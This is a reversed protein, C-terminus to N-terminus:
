AVREREPDLWVFRVSNLDTVGEASQTLTVYGRRQPRGGIKPQLQYGHTTCLCGTELMLKDSAWYVASAQHTHAQLLVRWPALSLVEHQDRFWEEVSRLAAGPM